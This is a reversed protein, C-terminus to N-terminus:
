SRIMRGGLGKRGSKRITTNTHTSVVNWNIEQGQKVLTM